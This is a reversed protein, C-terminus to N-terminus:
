GSSQLSVNKRFASLYGGVLDCQKTGRYEHTFLHASVPKNPGRHLILRHEGIQGFM